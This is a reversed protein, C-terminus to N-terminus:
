KPAKKAAIVTAKSCKLDVEVWERFDGGAVNKVFAVLESTRIKEGALPKSVVAGSASEVIPNKSGSIQVNFTMTQFPQDIELLITNGRRTVVLDQGTRYVNGIVQVPCRQALGITVVILECSMTGTAPRCFLTRQFFPNTASAAADAPHDAWEILLYEDEAAGAPVPLLLAFFLAVVLIPPVDWRTHGV